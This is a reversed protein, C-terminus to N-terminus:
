SFLWLYWWKESCRGVDNSAYQDRRTDRHECAVRHVAYHHRHNIDDREDGKDRM